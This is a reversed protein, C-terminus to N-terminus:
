VPGSAAFISRALRELQEDESEFLAMAIAALEEDSDPVFPKDERLAQRREALQEDALVMAARDIATVDGVVIERLANATEAVIRDKRARSVRQVPQDTDDKLVKRVTERAAKKAAREAEDVNRKGASIGALGPIFHGGPKKTLSIVTPNNSALSLTGRTAEIENIDAGTAIVNTQRPTVTKSAVQANVLTGFGTTVNFETLTKAPTLPRIVVPNRATSVFPTLTKAPTSTIQVAVDGTGGTVAPNISTLTKSGTTAPIGDTWSFASSALLVFNIDGEYYEGPDANINIGTLKRTALTNTVTVNNAAAAQLPTLTRQATGPRVELSIDISPVQASLVRTAAAPVNIVLGSQAAKFWHNAFWHQNLWHQEFWHGYQEGPEPWHNAFWHNAFWHNAFWHM